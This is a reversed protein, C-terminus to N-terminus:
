TISKIVRFGQSDSSTCFYEHLDPNLLVSLGSSKGARKQRRPFTRIPGSTSALFGEKEFDWASWEAIEEPDERTDNRSTCAFTWLFTTM